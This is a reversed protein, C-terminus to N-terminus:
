VESFIASAWALGQTCVTLLVPHFSRELTWGSVQFSFCKYCVSFKHEGGCRGKKFLGVTQLVFDEASLTARFNEGDAESIFCVWQKKGLRSAQQGRRERLMFSECKLKEPNRLTVSPFVFWDVGRPALASPQPMQVATTLGSSWLLLWIVLCHLSSVFASLPKKSPLVVWLDTASAM